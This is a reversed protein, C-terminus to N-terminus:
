SAGRWLNELSDRVPLASRWAASTPLQSRLPGRERPLSRQVRTGVSRSPPLRRSRDGAGLRGAVARGAEGLRLYAVGRPYVARARRRRHRHQVPVDIVATQGYLRVDIPSVPELVLYDIAGAEVAGLYDDRSLPVGPPPVLEFDDALLAAAAEVDGDVLTRLRTLELARLRQTETSEAPPGSGRAAAAAGRLAVLMTAVVFAAALAPIRLSHTTQRTKM